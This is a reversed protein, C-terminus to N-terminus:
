TEWEVSEEYRRMTCRASGTLAILREAYAAQRKVTPALDAVITELDPAAIAFDFAENHTVFRRGLGSPTMVAFGYRLYPYISKHRAAKASYLIVDHSSFSGVKLEIVVLPAAQLSILIDTQFAYQGRAPSAEATHSLKGQANVEIKYLLSKGTEVTFNSLRTALAESIRVAIDAESTGSAHQPEERLGVINGDNRATKRKVRVSGM